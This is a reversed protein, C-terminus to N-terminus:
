VLSEYVSKVSIPVQKINPIINTINAMVNKYCNVDKHVMNIVRFYYMKTNLQQYVGEKTKGDVNLIDKVYLIGSEVFSKSYLCKNNVTLLRNGWLIQEFLEEKSLIPICGNSTSFGTIVEQYFKPLNNICNLQGSEFNMRLVVNRPALTEFYHKPLYAWKETTSNYIRSLWVAKLAYFHSEIDIM